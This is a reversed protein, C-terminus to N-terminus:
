FEDILIQYAPAGECQAPMRVGGLVAMTPVVDVQRIYLPLTFGEKIGKGAGIFIPSVSTDQYGLTTSLSDSHDYNYGEANFYIIDGSEPGGLGLLVADKNRLALAIIRKGTEPHKYGYLATIVEEEVEYKDQPDVIGYRERGKLNIYIHNSRSAVAKTKSWDIQYLDNGAEDKKLATFGLEEMLRVNIGTIDGIFMPENESAVAAHDSVIMVTWGKDLLHLFKGLYKDTQVYVRQLAIQAEEETIKNGDHYKLMKQYMHGQLDINHLHSFIIEYGEKEICYNLADAYYDAVCDWTVGMCDTILKMNGGGVISLPQAYGVNECVRKYLDKPHWVTDDAINMGASLWIKLYTGDEAMEIIRMNRNYTVKNGFYDFGEDLYDKYYVDNELIALPETAKKSKYIAVKDYIGAENKLILGVRRSRGQSFLFVIEKADAPANAWGTADKIPSLMVDFPQESLTHEGDEAKLILFKNEEDYSGETYELPKAWDSMTKTYERMEYKKDDQNIVCPVNADAASKERYTAEPTKVSAVLMAEYEVLANTNVVTPSTGDVVSLNPNDSTPPWSSGPWHWVLTKKGAEAFVNWLPEAKCRRSDINYVLKDLRMPHQGNFGTIGHTMPYAGTALTTWMPPTVTPQGGLLVLDERASGRKIFEATNPMLGMEIYKKTLRPDMGDVGLVIIKESVAERKM